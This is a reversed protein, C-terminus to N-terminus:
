RSDLEAKNSKGAEGTTAVAGNNGDGGGGAPQFAEANAGGYEMGEVRATMFLNTGGRVGLHSALVGNPGELLSNGRLLRMWEVPVGSAAEVRRKMDILTTTGEVFPVFISRRTVTIVRVWALSDSSLDPPPPPYWHLTVTRDEGPHSAAFVEGMSIWEPQVLTAPSLADPTGYDLRAMGGDGLNREATIRRILDVAAESEIFSMRLEETEKTGDFRLLFVRLTAESSCAGRSPAKGEAANAAATSHTEASTPPQPPEPANRTSSLFQEALGSGMVGASGSTTERLQQAVEEGLERRMKAMVRNMIEPDVTNDFQMSAFMRDLAADVTGAMAATSSTDNATVADEREVEETGRKQEAM